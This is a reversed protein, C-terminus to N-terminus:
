LSFGCCVELVSLNFNNAERFETERIAPSYDEIMGKVGGDIAGKVKMFTKGEIKRSANGMEGPEKKFMTKDAFILAQKQDFEENYQEYKDRIIDIIEECGFTIPVGNACNYDERNITPCKYRGILLQDATIVEEEPMSDWSTSLLSVEKNDAYALRRIYVVTQAQDTEKITQSEFLRYTKNKKIYEDLMMIVGKLHTGICETIVFNDNGIINLGIYKGDTFPRVIADGTGLAVEAVPTQLEDTYYDKMERIAEARANNGDIIIDSDDIAINAVVSAGIATPNLGGEGFDIGSESKDVLELNLKKAVKLFINKLTTEINM